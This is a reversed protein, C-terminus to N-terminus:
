KPALGVLKAELLTLTPHPESRLFRISPMFRIKTGFPTVRKLQLTITEPNTAFSASVAVVDSLPITLRQSLGEVVLFDEGLIVHKLPFCLWACLGLGFLWAVPFMVRMQTPIPSSARFGGFALIIAALGFGTLWVAPFIVKYFVTVSSSLRM